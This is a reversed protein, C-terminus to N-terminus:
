LTRIALKVLLNATIQINTPSQNWGCVIACTDSVSAENFIFWYKFQIRFPAQKSYITFTPRFEFISIMIVSILSVKLPILDIIFEGLCMCLGVSREWEVWKRDVETQSKEYIVLFNAFLSLVSVVLGLLLGQYHMQDCNLQRSKLMTYLNATGGGFGRERPWVNLTYNIWGVPFVSLSGGFTGIM